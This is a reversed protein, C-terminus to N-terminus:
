RIKKLNYIEVRGEKILEEIHESFM